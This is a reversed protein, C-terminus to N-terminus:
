FLSYLRSVFLYLAFLAICCLLTTKILYYHNKFLANLLLSIILIFLVWVMQAAEIGINFYLLPLLLPQGAGLLSRLLFSFGMGHLLGFLLTSLYLVPKQQPRQGFFLQFLAAFLISFAIGPEVVNPNPLLLKYVSLALSISHGLTFATILVLLAKWEQTPFALALLSMFLMHDAASLDLIHEFGTSFWISFSNM